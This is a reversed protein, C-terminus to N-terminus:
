KIFVNRIDKFFRFSFRSFGYKAVLSNTYYKGGWIIKAGDGEEIIEIKIKGMMPHSKVPEYIIEGEKFEKLEYKYNFERFFIKYQVSVENGKKLKKTSIFNYDPWGEVDKSNMFGRSIIDWTKSKSYMSEIEENFEIVYKGHVQKELKLERMFLFLPLALSIGVVFMSIIPLWLYKMEKRKGEYIIFIVATIATVMLDLSYFTTISNNFPQFIFEQFSFGYDNYIPLIQSYPLIIGLAILILFLYKMFKKNTKGTIEKEVM